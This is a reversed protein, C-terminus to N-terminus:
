KPKADDALPLRVKPLELTGFWRGPKGDATITISGRLHFPGKADRAFSWVQDSALELHGADNPAVGAGTISLPLRGSEQAALTLKRAARPLWNGPPSGPKVAGGRADTVEWKVKAEDLLFEVTNDGGAVNRVDLRARLIPTGTAPADRDIVLRAQLPGVAESWEGRASGHLARVATAAARVLAAREPQVWLHQDVPQYERRPKGEERFFVRQSKLFVLYWNGRVFKPPELEKAAEDSWLL